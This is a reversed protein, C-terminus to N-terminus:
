PSHDLWRKWIGKQNRKGMVFGIEDNEKHLAPKGVRCFDFRYTGSLNAELWWFDVKGRQESTVKAPEFPVPRTATTRKTNQAPSNPPGAIEGAPV